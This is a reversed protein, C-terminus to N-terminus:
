AAWLRFGRELFRPRAAAAELPGILAWAQSDEKFLRQSVRITDERSVNELRELTEEVSIVRDFYLLCRGLATMRSGPTELSMLLSGRAQNKTKQLENETLGHERLSALESNIIEVLTDVHDLSTGVQVGFSGVEDLASMFSSVSYALGRRERVEQFLRSSVGGGLAIDLLSLAYRDEDHQTVGPLGLCLHAQQIERSEAAIASSYVPATGGPVTQAFDALAPQPPSATSFHRELEEVLLGQDLNGSATIFMAEPRYAQRYFDQAVGRELSSIVKPDGLVPAGYPQGPLLTQTLLDGVADAPNDQALRIEQLVVQKEREFEEPDFIPHLVLDCLLELGVKLHEPLIRVYYCTCERETFADLDGGVFDIDLSIQEGSRSQTGKFLLHELFHSIGSTAPAEHHSGSRVWIGVVVSRVGTLAESVVAVGDALRSRSLSPAPFM